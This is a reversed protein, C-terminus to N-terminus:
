ILHIGLAASALLGTWILVVFPRTGGLSRRLTANDEDTVEGAAIAAFAPGFDKLKIRVILGCSILGGFIALKWAIYNATDWLGGLASGGAALLSLALVLRFWFDFRTLLTKRPSPKMAHLSIVMGLWACCILWAVAVMTASIPLFGFRWALHIGLPLTMTMCIRPVQDIAFLIKATTTRVEASLKEDLVYYSSYFVALDAGLWYGFGVLHLFKIFLLDSM